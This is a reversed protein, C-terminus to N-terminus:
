EGTESEAAHHPNTPQEQIDFIRRAVNPVNKKIPRTAKRRRDAQTGFTDAAFTFVHSHQQPDRADVHVVRGARTYPGEGKKERRRIEINRVATHVRLTLVHESQSSCNQLSTRNSQLVATDTSAVHVLALLLLLPPMEPPMTVNRMRMHRSHVQRTPMTTTTTITAPTTPKRYKLFFIPPPKSSYLSHSGANEHSDRAELKKQYKNTRPILKTILVGYFFFHIFFYNM